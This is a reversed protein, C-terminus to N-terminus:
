LFEAYEMNYQKALNKYTEKMTEKSADLEKEPYKKVESDKLIKAFVESYADKEATTENEKELKTRISKEYEATNKYKTNKKVFADNYEPTDTKVIAKVKITFVVNKGAVDENSYKKPFKLKLDFKDGVKHGVIGESFGDIMSDNAIDLTYDEASGGDFKKGNIKGTFDIKVKSDSGVTGSKVDKTTSAKKIAKKVESQVDSDSVKKVNKKYQIGKYNGLTVYETLDDYQYTDPVTIRDKQFFYWFGLILIAALVVVGTIMKKKKSLM